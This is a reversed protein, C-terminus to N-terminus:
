IYCLGWTSIGIESNELIDVFIEVEEDGEPVVRFIGSVNNRPKM